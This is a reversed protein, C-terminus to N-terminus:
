EEEGLETVALRAISRLDNIMIMPEDPAMPYDKRRESFDFYDWDTMFKRIKPLNALPDAMWTEKNRSLYGGAKARNDKWCGHCMVTADELRRYKIVFEADEEPEEGKQAAQYEELDRFVQEEFEEYDPIKLIHSRTKKGCDVCPAHPVNLHPMKVVKMFM